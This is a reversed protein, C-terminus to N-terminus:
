ELIIKDVILQLTTKGRFTNENITYIISLNSGIEFVEKTKFKVGSMFIGDKQFSFKLHEGEKGMTNVDALKVNKTMFKPNANEQGYPEYKKILSTLDFSINNFELIGIVDADYQASTHKADEYSEQM